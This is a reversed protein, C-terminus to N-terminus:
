NVGEKLIGTRSVLLWTPVAAIVVLLAAYPAAAAFEGVATHTWMRTALTDMGTPRLLLTAPLEKMATLFALAAGAGIGPAILPVTVTRFVTWPRRGLSRAVQELQPPSQAAAAAVAGVALPLFLVAYALVLLWVTQYFAFAVNVGFFVLSLGVVVGPLAHPLYSLRELVLSAPGPARAVLLGIPLALLMTLGAGLLSVWLSAGAAATVEAISGPRSVGESFWRGMSVAPVGLALAGVATLGALAPWRTRRLRVRAPARGAGSGLRAYRAGRRRTATEGTLVLVTLAVLVTALVVATNPSFGLNFQTFIARTFTDTRVISVAGFDSLVYLAVLLGGAAVAPQVQRLTVGTFTAWAGRGLSRSVEEAAPDAGILAAATPLFVYPYTCLTLVLAAAWFGEFMWTRDIMGAAAVWAYGAVYSPIALPLAALVGFVRRGPLDTRTVLYASAVGIVVCAVTVVAALALSRVALEAVRPTFLVASVQAWGADAIRVALYALPISAVAVAVTAAVLLAPRPAFRHWATRVRSPRGV